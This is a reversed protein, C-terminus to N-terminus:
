CFDRIIQCSCDTPISRYFIYIRTCCYNQYLYLMSKLRDAVVLPFDSQTLNSFFLFKLVWIRLIALSFFFLFYRPPDPPMSGRFIKFTWVFIQATQPMRSAFKFFDLVSFNMIFILKRVEIQMWLDIVKIKVSFFAHRDIKKGVSFKKGVVKSKWKRSFGRKRSSVPWYWFLIFYVQFLLVILCGTSKNTRVPDDRSVLFLFGSGVCQDKPHLSRKSATVWVCRRSAFRALCLGTEVKEKLWRWFKWKNKVSADIESM